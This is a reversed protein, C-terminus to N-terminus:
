AVGSSPGGPLERALGICVAVLSPVVTFAAVLAPVLLSACVVALDGVAGAALQQGVASREPLWLALAAGAVSAALLPGLVLGDTVGPDGVAGVLEGGVAHGVRNLALPALAVLFGVLAAPLPSAVAATQLRRAHCRAVAKCLTSLMEYEGACAGIVLSQSCSTRSPRPRTVRVCRM